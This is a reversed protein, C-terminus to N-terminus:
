LQKRKVNLKKKFYSLLSEIGKFNENLTNYINNKDGYPSIPNGGMRSLEILLIGPFTRRLLDGYGTNDASEIKKYGKKESNGSMIGENYADALENNYDFFLKYEDCDMADEYPKYYILGGTGHYLLTALYSGREYSERLLKFLVKNEIAYEFNDSNVSPLGLPSPFYNRLNNKPGPGYKIYGNKIIDIGPSFPHNANLNVFTGTADHGIQSGLPNLKYVKKADEILKSSKLNSIDIDSFMQQYLKDQQTNTIESWFYDNDFGKKLINIFNMLFIDHLNDSSLNNLTGNCISLLKIKLEDFSDINSLASLQNNFIVINPIVRSDKLNIWDKNNNIFEKLEALVDNCRMNSNILDNMLSNLSTIAKVILSDTRYRLYYEKSKNEFDIDNIGSFTSTSIDFGEPNQIPIINIKFLNPDFDGFSSIHEILQTVFDVTIIESGHTGAVIFLDYKGDGITLYDLSYGYGTLCLTSKRLGLNLLKENNLFDNIRKEYSSLNIKGYFVNDIKEM